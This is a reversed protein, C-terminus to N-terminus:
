APDTQRAKRAPALRLALLGGALLALAGPEPVSGTGAGGGASGADSVLVRDLAFAEDLGDFGTVVLELLLSKSTDTPNAIHYDFSAFVESLATGANELFGGAAAGTFTDLVIAPGSFPGSLIRYQLSLVDDDEFVPANLASLDLSVQVDDIGTIDVPDFSIQWPPGSSPFGDLDRGGFYASGDIGGPIYGLDLGGGSLVSFFSGSGSSGGNQVTYHPAAEFSETFLPTAGAPFSVM